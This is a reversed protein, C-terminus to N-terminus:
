FLQLKGKSFQLKVSQM